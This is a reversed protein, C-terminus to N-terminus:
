NIYNLLRSDFSKRYNRTSTLYGISKGVGTGAEIIVYRKGQNLLADLAFEISEHQAERVNEHPFYKRYEFSM